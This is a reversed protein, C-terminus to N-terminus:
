PSMGHPLVTAHSRARRARPPTPARGITYGLATVALGIAIDLLYHNGTAIVSLAVLPAWLAALTKTWRRRLALM